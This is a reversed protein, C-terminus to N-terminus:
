HDESIAAGIFVAALLAFVYAQIVQVLAELFTFAIGAAELMAKRSASNSALVIGTGGLKTM